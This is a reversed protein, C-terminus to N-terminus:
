KTGGKKATKAPKAPKDINSGNKKAFRIKEENEVKYGVKSTEKTKADYYAVNSIHIPAEKTEIRGEPNSQSPKIHKTAMNVGEVVVKEGKAYVHLVQGITGKSSGAIVKVKDGKKIRMNM